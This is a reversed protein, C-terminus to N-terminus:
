NVSTNIFQVANLYLNSSQGGSTELYSYINTNLVSNVNKKLASNWKKRCSSFTFRESNASAQALWIIKKGCKISLEKRQSEIFMDLDRADDNYALHISLSLGCRPM